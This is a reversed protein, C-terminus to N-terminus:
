NLYKNLKQKVLNLWAIFDQIASLPRNKKLEQMAEESVQQIIKYQETNNM